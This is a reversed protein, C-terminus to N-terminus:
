RRSSGQPETPVSLQSLVQLVGNLHALRPGYRDVFENLVFDGDLLCDENSAVEETLQHLFETQVRSLTEAALKCRQALAPNAQKWQGLEAARQRQAAGAQQALEELLKNQKEQGIVLRRLLAIIIDDKDGATGENTAGPDATVDIHFLSPLQHPDYAMSFRGKRVSTVSLDADFILNV